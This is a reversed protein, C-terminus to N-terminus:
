INALTCSQREDSTFCISFVLQLYNKDYFQTLGLISRIKVEHSRLLDSISSLPPAAPLLSVYKSKYIQGARDTQSGPVCGKLGWTDITNYLIM